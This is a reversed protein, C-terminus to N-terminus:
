MEIIIGVSPLVTGSESSISKLLYRSPDLPDIRAQGNADLEQLLVDPQKAKFNYLNQIDLYLNLSWKKFYYEKDVRLDLQHFLLTAAITAFPGILSQGVAPVTSHRVLLFASLRDHQPRSKCNRM